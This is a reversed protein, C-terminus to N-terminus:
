KFPNTGFMDSFRQMPDIDDNKFSDFNSSGYAKLIISLSTNTAKSFDSANIGIAQMTKVIKFQLKNM